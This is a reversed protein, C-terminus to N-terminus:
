AQCIQIKRQLSSPIARLVCESDPRRRDDSSLRSRHGPHKGSLLPVAQFGPCHDGKENPIFIVQGHGVEAHWQATIKAAETLRDITQPLTFFSIETQRCFKLPCSFVRSLHLYTLGSGAVSSGKPICFASSISHWRAYYPCRRAIVNRIFWCIRDSFCVMGSM